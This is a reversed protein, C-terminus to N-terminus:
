DQEYVMLLDEDSLEDLEARYEEDTQATPGRLNEPLRREMIADIIAERDLVAIQSGTM